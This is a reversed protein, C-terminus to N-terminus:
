RSEGSTRERVRNMAVRLTRARLSASDILANIDEPTAPLRHSAESVRNLLADVAFEPIEEAVRPRAAELAEVVERAGQEFLAPSADSQHFREQPLNSPHEISLVGKAQQLKIRTGDPRRIGQCLIIRIQRLGPGYDHEGELLVDGLGSLPHVGGDGSDGRCAVQIQLMHEPAIEDLRHPPVEHEPPRGFKRMLAPRRGATDFLRRLDAAPTGKADFWSLGVVRPHERLLEADGPAIAVTSQLQIERLNQAALFPGLGGTLGKMSGLDLRWLRTLRELPPMAEIRPLAYLDLEELTTLEEVGVLERLGRVHSIMLHRLSRCGRLDIREATGGNIVLSELHELKALEGDPMAAAKMGLSRVGPAVMSADFAPEEIRVRTHMWREYDDTIWRIDDDTTM